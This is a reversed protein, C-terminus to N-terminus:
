RGVDFGFQSDRDVLQSLAQCSAIGDIDIRTTAVSKKAFGNSLQIQDWTSQQRATTLSDEDPASGQEASTRWLEVLPAM